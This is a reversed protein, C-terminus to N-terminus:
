SKEARIISVASAASLGASLLCLMGYFYALV